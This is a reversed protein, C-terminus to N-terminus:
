ARTERILCEALADRVENPLEGKAALGAVWESVIRPATKNAPLGIGVDCFVYDALADADCTMGWASQYDAEIAADIRSGIADSRDFDALPCATPMVFLSV